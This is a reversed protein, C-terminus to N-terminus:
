GRCPSAQSPAQPRATMSFLFYSIYSQIYPLLRLWSTFRPLLVLELRVALRCAQNCFKSRLGARETCGERACPAVHLTPTSARRPSPSHAVWARGQPEAMPEAKINAEVAALKATKPTKSAKAAAKSSPDYTADDTSAKRKATAKGAPEYADDDSSGRRKAAAKNSPLELTDDDISVRRKPTGKPAKPAKLAKTAKGVSKAPPRHPKYTTSLTPDHRQCSPCFFRDVRDGEGESM